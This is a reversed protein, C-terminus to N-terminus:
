EDGAVVSACKGQSNGTDKHSSEQDAHGQWASFMQGEMEYDITYWGTRDFPHKNYRGRVLLGKSILSAFVREVTRLCLFPFYKEHWRRMPNYTWTRGDHKNRGEKQNFVILGHIRQLVVAENLGILKALDASYSQYIPEKLWSM